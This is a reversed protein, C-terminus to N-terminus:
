EPGGRCCPFCLCVRDNFHLLDSSPFQKLSVPRRLMHAPATMMDFDVLLFQFTRNSALDEFKPTKKITSIFVTLRDTLDFNDFISVNEEMEKPLTHVLYDFSEQYLAQLNEAKQCM